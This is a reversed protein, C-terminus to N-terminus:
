QSVIRGVVSGLKDVIAAENAEFAGQLFRHAKTGRISIARAVAYANVGHRRAWVELAKIPPWHPKSGLEVAAAYGLASGVAGLVNGTSVAQRIESTISARLRGIDVPARKQADTQVLLTAERMGDLFPQGRLDRVVQDLKRQAEIRGLIEFRLDDAM